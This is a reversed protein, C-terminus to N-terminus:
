KGLPPVLNESLLRTVECRPVRISRGLRVYAIRRRAIWSRITHVSLGLQEAAELCTIAQSGEAGRRSFSSDNM